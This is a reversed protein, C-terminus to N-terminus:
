CWSSFEPRPPLPSPSVQPGEPVLLGLGGTNLRQAQPRRGWQCFSPALCYWLSALFLRLNKKIIHLKRGEKGSGEKGREQERERTQFPKKGTDSKQSTYCLIKDWKVLSFTSLRLLLHWVALFLIPALPLDLEALKQDLTREGMESSFPQLSAALWPYKEQSVSFSFTSNM